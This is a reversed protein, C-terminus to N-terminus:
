HLIRLRSIFFIKKINTERVKVKADDQKTYKMLAMIDEDKQMSEEIWAKLSQEDWKTETEIENM